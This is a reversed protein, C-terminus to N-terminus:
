QLLLLLEFCLAKALCTHLNYWFLLIQFRLIFYHLSITVSTTFVTETIFGAHDFTLMIITVKFLM